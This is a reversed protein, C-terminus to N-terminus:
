MINDIIIENITEMAQKVFRPNSKRYYPIILAAQHLAYACARHWVTDNVNLLKRFIYRNKSDFIAWAPIIDFAPDGIGAGGFDIVAAVRNNKVLINSKLLDAHIWVPKKDWVPTNVLKEWTKIVKTYEIEEKSDNLTEITMTNLELLPKRGAKPADDLLDIAHLEKIFNVLESVIIQSNVIKNNDYPEGDIWKYIAWNFPYLTDPEGLKIPEPIEISLQKSFYPLIKYEKLLSDAYTEVIPLRVYLDNGLKFISNVTGTSDFEVIPLNEYEPFQSQILSKVLEVNIEMQGDHLFNM